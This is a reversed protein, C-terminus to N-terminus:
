STLKIVLNKMNPSLKHLALEYISIWEFRDFKAPEGIVPTQGEPINASFWQYEMIQGNEEFDQAGLQKRLAVDLSLEENLERVAATAPSEGKDFDVKGGPLEYWDTKIRHLLLIKGEKVIVCGAIIPKKQEHRNEPGISM